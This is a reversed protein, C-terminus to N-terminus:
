ESSRLHKIGFYCRLAAGLALAVISLPPNLWQFHRRGARELSVAIGVIEEPFVRTRSGTSSDGAIWVYRGSEFRGGFGVIRHVILQDGCFVAAVSGPLLRGTRCAIMVRDGTRIFPWMSAGHATITCSANQALSELFAAKQEPRV